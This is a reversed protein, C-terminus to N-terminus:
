YFGGVGFQLDLEDGPEVGAMRNNIQAVIRQYKVYYEHYSKMHRVFAHSGLKITTSKGINIKSYAISAM